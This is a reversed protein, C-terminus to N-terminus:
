AYIKQQEEKSASLWIALRALPTNQVRQWEALLSEGDDPFREIVARAFIFHIPEKLAPKGTAAILKGCLELIQELHCPQYTIREEELTLTPMAADMAVVGRYLLQKQGSDSIVIAFPPTPPALCAARLEAVHAKTYARASGKTIIWSYNRMRQDTRAEQPLQIDAHENLCIVCGACVALSNPAAVTTWGNFSSKVYERSSYSDDCSAGCYFCFHAGDAFDARQAIALLKPVTIM